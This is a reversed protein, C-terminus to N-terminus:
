PKGGTWCKNSCDDFTDKTRDCMVHVCIRSTTAEIHRIRELAPNPILGTWFGLMGILGALLIADTKGFNTTLWAFANGIMGFNIQPQQDEPM